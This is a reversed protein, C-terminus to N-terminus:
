YGLAQITREVKERTDARVSAERNIVRSVTKLSVGSSKAVDKITPNRLAASRGRLCAACDLPRSRPSRM